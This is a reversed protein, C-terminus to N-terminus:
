VEGDWMAGVVNVMMDAVGHAYNQITDASMHEVMGEICEAAIEFAAKGRRDAQNLVMSHQLLKRELMLEIDQRTM